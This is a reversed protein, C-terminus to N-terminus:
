LLLYYLPFIFIWILDVLHWYLGSNELKVFDDRNVAGTAVWVAMVALLVAGIFVHLGHLGLTIYYLGFFIIEGQEKQLLVPSNPYIGHRIETSWVLYKNFLFLAGSLVGGWLMWQALKRSGRRVASVSVAVLLSGTLLIVTNATGLVIDLEAGAAAFEKPYRALYVAYLLFMGGFLIIETFLFLWMGLKAGTYDKHVTAHGAESM